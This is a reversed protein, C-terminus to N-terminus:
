DAPILTLVGGSRDIKYLRDNGIESVDRFLSGFDRVFGEDMVYVYLYTYDSALLRTAYEEATIPYTFHENEWHPEGISWSGIAGVRVPLANFRAAHYALGGNRADHDATFQQGIFCVSDTDPDMSVAFQESRVYRERLARADANVNPALLTTRLICSLPFFQILVCATLLLNVTARRPLKRRWVDFLSWVAIVQAGLQYEALYREINDLAAAEEPTFVFLYSCLTAVIWVAYGALLLLATRVAARKEEPEQEVLWILCFPVIIWLTWTFPSMPVIFTTVPTSLYSLMEAIATHQYPLMDTLLQILGTGSVASVDWYAAMGSWRVYLKWSIVALLIATVPALLFWLNRKKEESICNQFRKKRFADYWVGLLAMAALGIGTSKTASLVFAALTIRVITFPAVAREARYSLVIYALLLALIGDVLIRHYYNQFATFPLCCAIALALLLQKWDKWGLGRFFPLLLVFTLVDKAFFLSAENFTGSMRAFYYQLLAMAPPYDFLVTSRSGVAFGDLLYMNKAVTGWHSFEDWGTIVRGRTAFASLLLLFTLAVFAPSVSLRKWLPVGRETRFVWACIDAAALAGVAFVAYFGVRLLGALGFAYLGFITGMVTVPFTEAFTRHLRRKLDAAVLILPVCALLLLM